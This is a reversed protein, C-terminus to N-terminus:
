AAPVGKVLTLQGLHDAIADLLEPSEEINGVKAGM